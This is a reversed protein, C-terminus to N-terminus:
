ARIGDEIPLYFEQLQHEQNKDAEAALWDLANAFLHKMLESPLPQIVARFSFPKVILKELAIQEILVLCYTAVL